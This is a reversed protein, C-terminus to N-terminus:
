AKRLILRVCVGAVVLRTLWGLSHAVVILPHLKMFLADTAIIPLALALWMWLALKITASYDYLNLRVCAYIFVACTFFGVAIWITTTGGQSARWVEPYTNYKEHFLVGFFFWDTLSAAVGAIIAALSIKAWNMATEKKPQTLRQSAM